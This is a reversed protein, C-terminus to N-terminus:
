LLHHAQVQPVTECLSPRKLSNSFVYYTLNFLLLMTNILLSWLGYAHQHEFDMSGCWM